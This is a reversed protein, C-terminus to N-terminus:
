NHLDTVELITIYKPFFVLVNLSLVWVIFIFPFGLEENQFQMDKM